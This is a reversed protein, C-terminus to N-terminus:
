RGGEPEEKELLAFDVCVGFHDSLFAGSADIPENGILCFRKVSLGANATAFVRDYRVRYEPGPGMNFKNRQTDFTFEIDTKPDVPQMPQPAVGGKLHIFSCNAASHQEPPPFRCFQPSFWPRDVALTCAENGFIKETPVVEGEVVIHTVKGQEDRIVHQQGNRPFCDILGIKDAHECHRMNTDGAVVAPVSGVAAMIRQLQRSRKGAQSGWAMHVSCFSIIKNDGVNIDLIPFNYIVERGETGASHEKVIPLRSFLITYGCHTAAAKTATYGPLEFILTEQLCIVDADLSLLLATAADTREKVSRWMETRNGSALNYTVVRITRM